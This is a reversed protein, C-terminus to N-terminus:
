LDSFGGDAREHALLMATVLDDVHLHSQWGGGTVQLRRPDALLQRILDSGVGGNAAARGCQRFPLRLGLAWVHPLIRRAASRQGAQQGMLLFRFCRGMIRMRKWAVWTAM